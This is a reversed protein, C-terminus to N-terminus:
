INSNQIIFANEITTVTTSEPYIFFTLILYNAFLILLWIAIYIIISKTKKLKEEDWMSTLALFWAYIIMIVVIIWLFWNIWNIISVVIDAFWGLNSSSICNGWYINSCSMKLYTSNVLEYAIRVTIFWMLAYLISMKWTKAKEEDWNATVMRYFAYIMIAIFVFAVVSQLLEILPYIIKESFSAALTSNIQKDFLVNVFWYAIQTIIIWISIWIIWKKFNSIEEETKSSFILRIVIVLFYIWSIIFFINKLDRAIRIVANYIWWQWGQWISFDTENNELNQLYSNKEETLNSTSFNQWWTKLNMANNTIVWEDEDWAYTINAWSFAFLFVFITIITKIIYQM